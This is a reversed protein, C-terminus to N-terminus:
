ARTERGKNGGIHKIVQHFVIVDSRDGSWQFIHLLHQLRDVITSILVSGVENILAALCGAKKRLQHHLMPVVWYTLENIFFAAARRFHPLRQIGNHSNRM